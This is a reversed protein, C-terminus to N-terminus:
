ALESKTVFHLQLASIGISICVPNAIAGKVPYGNKFTNCGNKFTLLTSLHIQNNAGKFRNHIATNALDSRASVKSM